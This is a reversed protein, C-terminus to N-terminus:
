NSGTVERLKKVQKKVYDDQEGKSLDAITVGTGDITFEINFELPPIKEFQPDGGDTGKADTKKFEIKNAVTFTSPNFRVTFTAIEAQKKNVDPKDYAVIKLNSELNNMQDM